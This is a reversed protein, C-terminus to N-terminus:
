SVGEHLVGKRTKLVGDAADGLLGKWDVEFYMLYNVNYCFNKQFEITKLVSSVQTQRYEMEKDLLEKLHKVCGETECCCRGIQSEYGVLLPPSKNGDTTILARKKSVFKKCTSKHEPKKSAPKVKSTKDSAVTKRAVTAPM